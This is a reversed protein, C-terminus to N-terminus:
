TQLMGFCELLTLVYRVNHSTENTAYTQKKTDTAHSIRDDAVQISRNRADTHYIAFAFKVCYRSHDGVVTQFTNGRIQSHTARPSRSAASYRWMDAIKHEPTSGNDQKYCEIM